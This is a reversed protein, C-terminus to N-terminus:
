PLGAADLYHRLRALMEDPQGWLPHSRAEDSVAAGSGDSARPGRFWWWLVWLVDLPLSQQAKLLDIERELRRFQEQSVCPEVERAVDFSTVSIGEDSM